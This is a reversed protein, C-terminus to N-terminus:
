RVVGLAANARPIALATLLERVDDAETEGNNSGIVARVVHGSAGLRHLTPTLLSLGDSTFFGSQWRVEVVDSTLVVKLWIGLAQEPDRDGSDIYIM